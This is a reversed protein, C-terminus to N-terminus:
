EADSGEGEGAPTVPLGLEAREEATDSGDDEDDDRDPWFDAAQKMTMEMVHQYAKDNYAKVDQAKLDRAVLVFAVARMGTVPKFELLNGVQDGFRRDIEQEEFGTLTEVAEQVGIPSITLMNTM